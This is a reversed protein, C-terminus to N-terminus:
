FQFMLTASIRETARIDKSVTADLELDPLRSSAPGGHHYGSRSDPPPIARLANPDAFM